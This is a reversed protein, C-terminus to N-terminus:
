FVIKFLRLAVKDDTYACLCAINSRLPCLVHQRLRSLPREAQGIEAPKPTKSTVYQNSKNQYIPPLSLSFNRFQWINKSFLSLNDLFSPKEHPNPRQPSRCLRLMRSM